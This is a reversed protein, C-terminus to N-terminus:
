VAVEPIADGDLFRGCTSSHGISRGDTEGKMGVVEREPRDVPRDYCWGSSKCRSDDAEFKFLRHPLHRRETENRDDKLRLAGHATEFHRALSRLRSLWRGEAFDCDPEVSTSREHSM